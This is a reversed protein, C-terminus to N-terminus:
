AVQAAGTPMNMAAQMAKYEKITYTLVKMIGGAAIILIVIIVAAATGYVYPKVSHWVNNGNKDPLGIRDLMQIKM